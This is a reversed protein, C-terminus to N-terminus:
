TREFACTYKRCFVFCFLFMFLFKVSYLSKQEWLSSWIIWCTSTQDKWAFNMNEICDNKKEIVWTVVFFTKEGRRGLVSLPQECQRSIRSIAGNLTTCVQGLINASGVRGGCVDGQCGPCYYQNQCHLFFFFCLCGIRSQLFLQWFITNM